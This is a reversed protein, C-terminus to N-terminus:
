AANPDKSATDVAVIGFDRKNFRTKSVGLICGAAVSPENGYDTMEEKWEFNLGGTTGYAVVAAQRGLFLARAAAVNSGAGYDNFRIVDSHKHLVIDDIMGLNGTFVANKSGEAAAAAKQIDLWGGSGVETRLDYVQTPNMVMVYHKGQGVPVPLLNASRPDMARMMQAKHSVKEIVQRSMKDAATLTAKSTAAGAYLLHQGDPTRIPNGAHGTYTLDFAEFNENMGRAGSMYIFIMQDIYQSWWESLRSKAVSRLDHATRKRTMKGGCSVAKRLQDIIVEDTFFKLQEETGELRNDGAVPKGRLQVSLDFSVRDGADAELETKRQIVADDGKGIFKEWYSKGLTEAYLRASWKKQAQADKGWVITTQSM